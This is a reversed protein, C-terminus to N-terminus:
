YPLTEELPVKLFEQKKSSKSFLSTVKNIITPANKLLLHSAINRTGTRLLWKLPWSFGGFLTKSAITGIVNTILQGTPSNPASFVKKAVDIVINSPTIYHELSHIEDFLNDKAISMLSKLRNREAILEGLNSINSIM